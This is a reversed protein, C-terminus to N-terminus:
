QKRSFIRLYKGMTPDPGAAISHPWFPSSATGMLGSPACDNLPKIPAFTGPSIYSSLAASSLTSTATNSPHPHHQVM